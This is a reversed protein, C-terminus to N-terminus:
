SKVTHSNVTSGDVNGASNDRSLFHSQPYAIEPVYDAAKVTQGNLDLTFTSSGRIEIYNSGLDVESLLTVTAGSNGETFADALAGVYTTSGYKEVKAVASINLPVPPFISLEFIVMLTFLPVRDM